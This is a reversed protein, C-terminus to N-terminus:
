SIMMPLLLKIRMMKVFLRYCDNSNLKDNKRSATKLFVKNTTAPHALIELFFRTNGPLERKDSIAAAM